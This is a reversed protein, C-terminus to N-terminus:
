GPTMTTRAVQAAHTRAAAAGVLRHRAAVGLATEHRVGFAMLGALASLALAVILSIGLQRRAMVNVASDAVSREAREGGFYRIGSM